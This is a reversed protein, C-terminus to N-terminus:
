SVEIFYGPDTFLAYGTEISELAIHGHRYVHTVSNSRDHESITIDVIDNNMMCVIFPGDGVNIRAPNDWNIAEDNWAVTDGKKFIVNPLPRSPCQWARPNPIDVNNLEPVINRISELLVGKEFQECEDYVAKRSYIDPLEHLVNTFDASQSLPVLNASQFQYQAVLSPPTHHLFYQKRRGRPLDVPCYRQPDYNVRLSSPPPNGAGLEHNAFVILEFM